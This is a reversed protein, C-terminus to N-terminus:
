EIKARWSRLEIGDKIISAVIASEFRALAMECDAQLTPDDEVMEYWSSSAVGAALAAQRPRLGRTEILALIAARRGARSVDRPLQRCRPRRRVPPNRAM